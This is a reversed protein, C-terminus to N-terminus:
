FYFILNKYNFILSMQPYYYDNEKVDYIDRTPDFGKVKICIDRWFQDHESETPFAYIMQAFDLSPFDDIWLLDRTMVIPIVTVEITGLTKTGLNDASEVYLTHIGSYYTKPGAETM